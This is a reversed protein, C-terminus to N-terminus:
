YEYLQIQHSKNGDDYWSTSSATPFFIDAIWKFNMRNQSTATISSISDAEQEHLLLQIHTCLRRRTYEVRTMFCVAERTTRQRLRM